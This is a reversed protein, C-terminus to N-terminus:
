KKWDFNENSLAPKLHKPIPPNSSFSPIQQIADSCFFAQDFDNVNKSASLSQNKTKIKNQTNNVKANKNKKQFRKENKRKRKNHTEKSQIEDYASTSNLDSTGDSNSNQDVMKNYNQYLGGGESKIGHVADLNNNEFIKSIKNGDNDKKKPTRSTVVDVVASVEMGSFLRFDSADEIGNKEPTLTVKEPTQKTKMEADQEMKNAKTSKRPTRKDSGNSEEKLQKDANICNKEIGRKIGEDLKPTIDKSERNGNFIDNVNVKLEKNTNCDSITSTAVNEVSTLVTSVKFSIINRNDTILTDITKDKKFKNNSSSTQKNDNIIRKSNNICNGSSTEDCSLNEEKSNTFSVKFFSRLVIM